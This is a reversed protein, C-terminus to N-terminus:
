LAFREYHIHSRAVGLSRLTLIAHHMHGPPGCLFADREAVDPVLNKLAAADLPDRGDDRSGLVYDVHVGRIAALHDLEARFLVDAETRARYVLVLDGPHGPFTELMARLPTIGIGGAIVVIKERTRRRALNGYPGEAIVRTGPELDRVARTHDGAIKVTFRLRTDTPAASLSFPHAHWWQGKTVFRWRFFQGAEARMRDLGRGRVWVSVAEPGAPEVSEVRLGFRVGNEIPVIVRFWALSGFTAVYLGIWLARNGPHTVFDDGNALQHSFSLAIAIYTYLHLLYWTEYRLRRRAVRVSTAGVFILVGLAVTAALVDAYSTIFVSTEHVISVHDAAAYGSVILVTHAVLLLITYQGNASHWASMRDTGIWRDLWPLRSMLVVQVLVLYTGVLGTIRGAAILEDSFGHLHKGPNDHWWLGVVVVGLAVIVALVIAERQRQSTRAWRATPVVDNPLQLVDTACSM